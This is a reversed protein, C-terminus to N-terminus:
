QQWVNLKSRNVSYLKSGDSNFAVFFVDFSYEHEDFIKICIGDKIRWLRVKGDHSGSALVNGCPSFAVSTVSKAHGELTHILSGDKTSWLKITKDYSGSALMNNYPSFVVSNATAAHGDIAWIMSGNKVNWLRLSGGYGTSVLKESDHSFALSRVGQDHAGLTWLLRGNKLTWLKVTRDDSGSALFNNCPSFVVSEVTSTHSRLNWVVRHLKISWVKISNWFSGVALLKNDSSISICHPNSLTLEDYWWFKGEDDVLSGNKLNTITISKTSSLLAICTDNKSCSVYRSLFRTPDYSLCFLKSRKFQSYKNVGPIIYIDEYSKSLYGYVSEDLNELLVINYIIKHKKKCYYMNPFKQILMDDVADLLKKKTITQDLILQGIIAGNMLCVNRTQINQQSSSISKSTVDLQLPLDLAKGVHKLIFSANKNSWQTLINTIKDSM